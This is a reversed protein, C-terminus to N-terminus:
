KGFFWLTPTCRATVIPLVFDSPTGCLRQPYLNSAVRLSEGRIDCRRAVCGCLEFCIPARACVSFNGCIDTRDFCFGGSDLDVAVFKRACSRADLFSSSLFCIAARWIRLEGMRDLPPLSNRGEM